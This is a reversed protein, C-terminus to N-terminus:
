NADCTRHKAALTLAALSKFQDTVLQDYKATARSGDHKCANKIDINLKEGYLKWVPLLTNEAFQTGSIPNAFGEKADIYAKGDYTYYVDLRQAPGQASSSASGTGTSQSGTSAPTSGTGTGSGSTNNCSALTLASVAAFAAILAIKRKKM